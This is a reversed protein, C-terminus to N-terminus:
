RPSLREADTILRGRLALAACGAVLMLGALYFPARVGDAQGIIGSAVPAIAAGGWRLFNYAASSVSRSFPSATMAFTTFIANSMGCFFGSAVILYLLASGGEMGAAAMIAALSLLSAQLLRIPPVLRELKRVAYVSAFAVLVGWFFYTVGLTMTSLGALTLPSYALITFFAYSYALGILANTLVARDGLAGVVDRVTRAEEKKPDRVFVATALLGVAMLSATGFFPYRWSYSGLLGGLLPGSAIGLGLAAEYLVITSATDAVSAGVLISLAMSVFFANGLGWGSRFLALASITPSLGSLTSFIVVLGLGLMLTKKAGFRTGAAGSLLMAFAMVGIYGTFLLEIQPPTAGLREGILPLLPDVVGIGMFAVFTAATIALVDTPYPKM